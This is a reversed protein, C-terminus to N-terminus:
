DIKTQINVTLYDIIAILFENILWEKIIAVDGATGYSRNDIIERLTPNSNLRKTPERVLLMKIALLFIYLPTEKYGSYM